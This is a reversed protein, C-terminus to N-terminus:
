ITNRKIKGLRFSIWPWLFYIITLFGLLAAIWFEFPFSYYISQQKETAEKRYNPFALLISCILNILIALAFQGTGIREKFYTNFFNLSENNKKKSFVVLLEQDKVRKDPLYKKFAGYELTRINKLSSSDYFGFDYSNPIINFCFCTEINCLQKYKLQEPLNRLENVKTDYIITSRGIGYKRTSVDILTPEVYFRFYINPKVVSEDRLSRLDIIVRIIKDNTLPELKVPLIGLPDRESFHHIVGATNAGNDLSDTRKVSDNFIFKSNHSEKLSGYLDKFNLSDKIWPVYIGLTLIEVSQLSDYDIECGFEVLSTENRFEWFCLHFRKIALQSESFIFYNNEM